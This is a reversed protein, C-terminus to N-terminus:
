SVDAGVPRRPFWLKFTSGNGNGPLIEVTGGHLETFRQVIALGLGVGRAVRSLASHVQVFPEFVRLRMEEPIGPGDDRILVTVGAEDGAVSAEVRGGDRGHKLANGLINNFIQRLRLEDAIVIEPAGPALSLTAGRMEANPRLLALCDELIYRLDLDVLALEVFGSGTKAHDLIGEVTEMLSAANQRLVQAYRDLSEPNRAGSQALLDSYGIIISLPMRLEHTMMALFDNKAAAAQESARELEVYRTVDRQVAVYYATRGDPGPAPSISWELWYPEGSRRYNVTRGEWIRGASLLSRLPEFVALDTLAGQFMRPSRGIIESRTWGTMREFASNAYLIKPGPQELDADTILISEAVSDLVAWGDLAGELKLAADTM